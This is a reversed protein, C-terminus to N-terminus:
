IQWSFNSTGAVGFAAIVLVTIRLIPWLPKQKLNTKLSTLSVISM